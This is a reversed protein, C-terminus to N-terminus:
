APNWKKRWSQPVNAKVALEVTVKHLWSTDIAFLSMKLFQANSVFIAKARTPTHKTEAQVM